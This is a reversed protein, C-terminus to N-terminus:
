VSRPCLTGLVRQRVTERQRKKYVDHAALGSRSMEYSQEDMVQVEFPFFFHIESGYKAWQQAARVEPWQAVPSDALATLLSAMEKPLSERVRIQQRCTFQISRYAVSSHPNDTPSIQPYPEIQVLQRIADLRADDHIEGLEVKQQVVDLIVRVRAMDILTNRSRSPKVNAFMIVNNKRLYRVCLLADFRQKTVLRVGVYDFIDTAVNEVKHLLKMLVSRMPKKAKIEFNVLPIAFAGKGLSLKGSMEYIHPQFRDLIQKRIEEGFRQAFYSHCHSITHMLRLVSCSWPQLVQLDRNSAWLLLKRVDRQERVEVPIPPDGPETLLEDELFALAETRILELDLRHSPSAWDFGYCRLFDNAEAMGSVRLRPVDIASAGGIIAGLSDFPFQSPALYKLHM